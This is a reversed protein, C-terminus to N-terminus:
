TTAERIRAEADERRVYFWLPNVPRDHVSDWIQYLPTMLNTFAKVYYRGERERESM